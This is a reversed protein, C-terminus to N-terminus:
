GPKTDLCLIISSSITTTVSLLAAPILQRYNEYVKTQGFLHAIFCITGLSHSPLFPALASLVGDGKNDRKGLDLWIFSVAWPSERRSGLWRASSPPLLPEVMDPTTSFLYYYSDPVPQSSPSRSSIEGAVDHCTWCYFLRLVKWNDRGMTRESSIKSCKTHITFSCVKEATRGGGGFSDIIISYFSSLDM